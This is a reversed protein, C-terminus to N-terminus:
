IRFDDCGAKDISVSDGNEVLRIRRLARTISVSLYIFIAHLICMKLNNDIDAPKMLEILILKQGIWIQFAVKEWAGATDVTSKDKAPDM